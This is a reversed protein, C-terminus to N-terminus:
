TLLTSHLVLRKLDPIISVKLQDRQNKVRKKSLRQNPKLLLSMLNVAGLTIRAVESRPFYEGEIPAKSKQSTKKVVKSKAQKLSKEKQELKDEVKQDSRQKSKSIHDETTRIPVEDKYDYDAGYVMTRAADTTM